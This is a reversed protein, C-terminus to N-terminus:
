EIEEEEILDILDDIKVDLAKALKKITGFTVNDLKTNREIMKYLISRDLGARTALQNLNMGFKDALKEIWHPYTFLRDELALELTADYDDEEWPAEAPNDQERWICCLATGRNPYIEYAIYIKENPEPMYDTYNELEKAGSVEFERRLYYDDEDPQTYPAPEWGLSILKNIIEKM